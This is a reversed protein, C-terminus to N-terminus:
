VGEEEEEMGGMGEHSRAVSGASLEGGKGRGTKKGRPAATM